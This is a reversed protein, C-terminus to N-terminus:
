LKVPSDGSLRHSCGLAAADDGESLAAVTRWGEKRLVAAASRDHGLPLFLKERRSTGGALADVLPDPYLSFGTAAEDCGLIRYTGGRGLAGRVDDAYITFGFWSQYEFGHRESPDLTLRAHNGVRQAIERLGAIRSALAGGADIAALKEIAQDFPGTAYLLPVYADGGVDRLGGADKSDLERRVNEVQAADLPFASAALTDVLDPLTFDISIGSAGAAELAEIALSVMEGAAAVNDAGVLEAGVQLRERSPELQDGTIRTVQGAYSLRLPRPAHALGTAAIRGVQVTIDSRLALTRLSTPDVFRFMRRPQVGDMRGALSKEFEILPPRVRDFGHGDMVQLIEQEINSTIAAGQPLRDELGEPLLDRTQDTM